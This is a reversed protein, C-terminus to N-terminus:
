MEAGLAEAAIVAVLASDIGGSLGLVVKRFGNKLVYDRTGMVLAQYVEEEVSMPEYRELPVSNIKLKGKPGLSRDGASLPFDFVIDQEKFQRGQLLIGGKPSIVLSHGGCEGSRSGQWHM